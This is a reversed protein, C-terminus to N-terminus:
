GPMEMRLMARLAAKRAAANPLGTSIVSRISAALSSTGLISRERESASVRPHTHTADLQVDLPQHQVACAGNGDRKFRALHEIKPFSRSISCRLAQSRLLSDSPNMM